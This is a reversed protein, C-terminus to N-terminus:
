VLSFSIPYVRKNHLDIEPKVSAISQMTSALATENITIGQAIYIDVYPNFKKSDVAQQEAETDLDYCEIAGFNRIAEKRQEQNNVRISLNLATFIERWIENTM